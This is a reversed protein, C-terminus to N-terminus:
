SSAKRFVVYELGGARANVMLFGALASLMSAAMFGTGYYQWGARISVLSGTVNLTFFLVNLRLLASYDDLYQLVLFYFFYLSFFVTGIMLYHFVFPNSWPLPVIRMTVLFLVVLVTGGYFALISSSVQGIGHVLNFKDLALERFPFNNTLKFVFSEYPGTIKRKIGKYILLSSVMMITLAVFFPFDYDPAFHLLPDFAIGTEGSFWFIFKDAWFGLSFVFSSLGVRLARPRRLFQPDLTIESRMYLKVIYAYGGAVPVAMGLSFFILLFHIETKRTLLFLALSTGMGASFLLFLLREKRLSCLVSSLCWFLGLLCALGIFGIKQNLPVKSLLLALPASLAMTAFVVLISLLTLGNLITHVKGLFMEDAM